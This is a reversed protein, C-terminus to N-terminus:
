LKSKYVSDLEHNWKQVNEKDKTYTNYRKYM